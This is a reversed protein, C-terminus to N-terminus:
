YNTESRMSNGGLQCHFLTYRDFILGAIINACVYGARNASTAIAIHSTTTNLLHVLNVVTPGVITHSM